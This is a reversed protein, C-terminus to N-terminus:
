GRFRAVEEDYHAGHVPCTGASVGPIPRLWAWKSEDGEEWDDATAAARAIGAGTEKRLDQAKKAWTGMLYYLSFVNDLQSWPPKGLIMEFLCCGLSWIDQAGRPGQESAGNIIEPAMYSPSGFMQQLHPKDCCRQHIKAGGFDALKIVNDKLLLNGPKLDRHVIDHKHIYRLGELIQRVWVRVLGEDKIGPKLDRQAEDPELGSPIRNQYIRDHVSGGSAFELFVFMDEGISEVGYYRLLNPHDLLRLLKVITAFLKPIPLWPHTSAIRTRKIAFLPRLTSPHVAEFVMGTTGSGLLNGMAWHPFLSALYGVEAERDDDEDSDSSPDVESLLSMADGDRLTPTTPDEGLPSTVGADPLSNATRGDHNPDSASRLPSPNQPVIIATLSSTASVTTEATSATASIHSRRVFGAADDSVTSDRPRATAQTTDSETNFTVGSALTSTLSQQVTGATLSGMNSQLTELMGIEKRGLLKEAEASVMGVMAETGQPKEGSAVAMKFECMGHIFGEIGRVQEDVLLSRRRARFKRSLDDEPLDRLVNGNDVPSLLSVFSAVSPIFPRRRQVGTSGKRSLSYKSYSSAISAPRYQRSSIQRSMTSHSISIVSGRPSLKQQWDDDDLHEYLSSPYRHMPSPTPAGNFSSQAHTETSGVKGDAESLVFALPSNPDREEGVGGFAVRGLVSPQGDAPGYGEDGEDSSITAGLKEGAFPFMMKRALKPWPGQAMSLFSVRRARKADMSSARHELARAQRLDGDSQAQHQIYASPGGAQSALHYAGEKLSTNRAPIPAQMATSGVRVM